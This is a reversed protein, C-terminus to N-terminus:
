QGKWVRYYSDLRAALSGPKESFLRTALPIITNELQKKRRNIYDSLQQSVPLRKMVADRNLCLVLEDMDHIGGLKEALRDLNHILVGTIPPWVLRILLIQNWLCKVTKRLNHLDGPSNKTLVIGLETQGKKYTKRISETLLDFGCDTVPLNEMRDSERVLLNSIETFLHRNKISETVVHQHRRRFRRTLKGMYARDVPLRKDHVFTGLTDMYVRSLRLEALRMSITRFCEMDHQYSAEGSTKRFLRIVARVRKTIKRIEHAALDPEEDAKLCLTMCNTVLEGSVRHYTDALAEKRYIRFGEM